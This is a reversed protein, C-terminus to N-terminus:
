SYRVGLLAQVFRDVMRLAPEQSETAAPQDTADPSLSILPPLGQSTLPKRETHAIRVGIRSIANPAFGIKGIASGKALTRIWLSARRLNM